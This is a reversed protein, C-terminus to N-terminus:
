LYIMGSVSTIPDHFECHQCHDLIFHGAERELIMGSVSGAAHLCSVRLTLPLQYLQAIMGASIDTLEIHKCWNKVSPTLQQNSQGYSIAKQLEQDISDDKTM